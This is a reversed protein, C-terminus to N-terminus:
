DAVEEAEFAARVVPDPSLRLQDFAWGLQQGLSSNM